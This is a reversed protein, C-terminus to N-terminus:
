LLEFISKRLSQKVGGKQEKFARDAQKALSLDASIRQQSDVFSLFCWIKFKLDNLNQFHSNWKSKFKMSFKLNMEQSILEATLTADWFILFQKKCWIPSKMDKWVPDLWYFRGSTQSLKMLHKQNERKENKKSLRSIRNKSPISLLQFPMFYYKILLFLFSLFKYQVKRVNWNEYKKCQFKIIKDENM